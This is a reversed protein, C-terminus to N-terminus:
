WFGGVGRGRRWNRLDEFGRREREREEEISESRGESEWIGSRMWNEMREEIANRMRGAENRTREGSVSM